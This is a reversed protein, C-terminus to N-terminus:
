CCQCTSSFFVDFIIIKRSKMDLLELDGRTWDFTGASYRVVSLMWQNIGMFVNRASLKSKVLKRVRRLYETKIKNKM